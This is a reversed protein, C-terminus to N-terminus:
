LITKVYKFELKLLLKFCHDMCFSMKRGIDWSGYFVRKPNQFQFPRFSVLSYDVFLM